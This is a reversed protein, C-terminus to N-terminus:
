KLDNEKEVGRLYYDEEVWFKYNLWIVFSRQKPITM